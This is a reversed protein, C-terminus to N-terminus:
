VSRRIDRTNHLNSKSKQDKYRVGHDLEGTIDQMVTAETAIESTMHSKVSMVVTRTLKPTIARIFIPADSTVNRSELVVPEHVSFLLM